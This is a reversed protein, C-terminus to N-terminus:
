IPNAANIRRSIEAMFDDNEFNSATENSQFRKQM